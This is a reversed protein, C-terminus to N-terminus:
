LGELSPSEPSDAYEPARLHATTGPDGDYWEFTYSHCSAPEHDDYMDCRLVVGNSTTLTATCGEDDPLRTDAM